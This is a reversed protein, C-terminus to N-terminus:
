IDRWKRGYFEFYISLLFYYLDRKRMDEEIYWIVEEIKYNFWLVKVIFSRIKFKM